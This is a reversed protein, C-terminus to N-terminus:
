FGLMEFLKHLIPEELHEEGIRAGIIEEIEDVYEEPLPLILLPMLLKSSRVLLQPDTFDDETISYGELTAYPYLTNDIRLGRTTVAYQVVKPKRAAHILLVSGGTLIAIGLLINGLFISAAAFSIIIIGAIWYWDSKKEVHHHELAEWAVGRLQDVM